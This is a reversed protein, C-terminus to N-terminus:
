VSAILEVVTRKCIGIVLSGLAPGIRCSRRCHCLKRDTTVNVLDSVDLIKVNGIFDGLALTAALAEEGSPRIRCRHNAFRLATRNSESPKRCSSGLLVWTGSNLRLVGAFMDLLM